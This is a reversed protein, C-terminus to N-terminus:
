SWYETMLESSWAPQHVLTRPLFEQMVPKIDIV